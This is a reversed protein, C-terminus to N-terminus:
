TACSRTVTAAVADLLVKATALAIRYGIAREGPEGLRRGGTSAEYHGELRLWSACLTEAESWLEGRFRPFAGGAVPEWAVAVLAGASAPRRTALRAVTQGSLAIEAGLSTLFVPARLTFSWAGAADDADGIRRLVAAVSRQPLRVLVSRSLHNM